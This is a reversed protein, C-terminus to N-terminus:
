GKKAYGLALATGDVVKYGYVQLGRMLTGFSSEARLTEMKTLQSAFTLGHSHGAFILTAASGSTSDTPLLNSSYLTFRDIMGLRGNRMITTSDGTLSADRLESRKILAALWAPIVVWRGSEPINQEDLVQGLGVIFDMVETEGVGPSRAKLTLPAAATGLPVNSSLAGATNGKNAAVVGTALNALVDTDITIKMQESADDAWMSLMDIDSQLEMVDDIVVSFYKGKDIVLDVLASSPRDHTLAQDATYNRISISPKVRIHVTDGQNKLEGEYDTNSIAALVTANYFKEILKGSWIAPIFIGAYAPSPTSGSFPTGLPFAM